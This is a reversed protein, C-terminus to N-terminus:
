EFVFSTIRIREGRQETMKVVQFNTPLNLREEAWALLVKGDEGGSTARLVYLHEGAERHSNLCALVKYYGGVKMFLHLNGDEDILPLPHSFKERMGRETLFSAWAVGVWFTVFATIVLFLLTKSETATAIMAGIFLAITTLIALIKFDLKTM